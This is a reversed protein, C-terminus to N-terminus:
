TRARAGDMHPAAAKSDAGGNAAADFQLVIPADSRARRRCRAETHEPHLNIVHNDPLFV